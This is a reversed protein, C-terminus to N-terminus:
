ARPKRHRKTAYATARRLVEETEIIYGLYHGHVVAGVPVDREADFENRRGDISAWARALDEVTAGSRHFSHLLQAHRLLTDAKAKPFGIDAFINGSGRVVKM